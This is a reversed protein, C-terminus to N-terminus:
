STPAEFYVRVTVVRVRGHPLDYTPKLQEGKQTKRGDFVVLFAEPSHLNGMYANLQDLGGKSHGIGYPGGLMKLELVHDQGLFNGLLDVYGDGNGIERGVFALGGWRGHLFLGLFAQAVREPSSVYTEGPVQWLSKWYERATVTAFDALLEAFTGARSLRELRQLVNEYPRLRDDIQSGVLDAVLRTAEGGVLVLGAAEDHLIGEASLTSDAAAEFAEREEASADAPLAPRLVPSAVVRDRSFYDNTEVVVGFSRGIAEDAAALAEPVLGASKFRESTERLARAIAPVPAVLRQM